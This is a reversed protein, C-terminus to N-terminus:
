QARPIKHVVDARYQWQEIHEDYCNECLTAESANWHGTYDEVSEGCEECNRDTAEYPITM